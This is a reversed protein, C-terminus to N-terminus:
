HLASAGGVSEDSLPCCRGAAIEAAGDARSEQRLADIRALLPASEQPRLACRQEPDLNTAAREVQYLQQIVAVMQAASGDTLFAEVFRRRGHAWSGIEIVQGSQYLADYGAYADAQLKGRFAALFAVPGERDHTPTADFVVQRGLPDLYTWLRGKYSGGREDLITITTDDTQLYDAATSERRLQDGIPTLATAVDAVWDCLTARSLHDIHEQRVAVRTRGAAMAERVLLVGRYLGRQHLLGRHQRRFLKHVIRVKLDDPREAFIM